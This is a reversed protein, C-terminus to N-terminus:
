EKYAVIAGHSVGIVEYKFMDVGDSVVERRYLFFDRVNFVVDDLESPRIGSVRSRSPPRRASGISLREGKTLLGLRHPWAARGGM